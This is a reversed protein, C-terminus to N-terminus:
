PVDSASAAGAVEILASIEVAGPTPGSRIAVSAVQLPATVTDKLAAALADIDGTATLRARYLSLSATAATEDIACAGNLTAAIDACAREVLAKAAAAGSLTALHEPAAGILGLAQRTRERREDLRLAFAAAAAESNKLTELREAFHQGVGIMATLAGFLTLAVVGVALGGHLTRRSVLAVTM